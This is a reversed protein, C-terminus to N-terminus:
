PKKTNIHNIKESIEKKLLEIDVEIKNIKLQKELGKELLLSQKEYNVCPKCILMHIRLQFKEKITLEFHNKKEVLESAKICSLFIKKM